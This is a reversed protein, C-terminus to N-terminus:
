TSAFLSICFGREKNSISPIVQNPRIAVEISEFESQPLGIFYNKNHLQVTLRVKETMSQDTLPEFYLSKAPKKTKIPTADNININNVNSETSM